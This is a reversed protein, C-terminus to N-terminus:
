ISVVIITACGVGELMEDGLMVCNALLVTRMIEVTITAGDSTAGDSTARGLQAPLNSM